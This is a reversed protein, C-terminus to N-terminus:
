REGRYFTVRSVAAFVIIVLIFVIVFYINGLASPYGMRMESSQFSVVRIYRLVTNFYDTFSDIISYVVNFLIVPSLMPLTIKWFSNWNNAGDV